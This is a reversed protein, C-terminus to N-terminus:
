SCDPVTSILVRGKSGSEQTTENLQSRNYNYLVSSKIMWLLRVTNKKRRRIKICLAVQWDELGKAEMLRKVQTLPPGVIDEVTLDVKAAELLAGLGTQGEPMAARVEAETETQLGLRGLEDFPVYVLVAQMTGRTIPEGQQLKEFARQVRPLPLYFSSAAQTAGGANLAVVEGDVDIM